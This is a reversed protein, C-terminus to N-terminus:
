ARPGREALWAAKEAADRPLERIEFEGTDRVIYTQTPGPHVGAQHHGGCGSCYIMEGAIAIQEDHLDFDIACADCDHEQWIKEIASM